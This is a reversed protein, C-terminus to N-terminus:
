SKVAGLLISYIGAEHTVDAVRYKGSDITLIAGIAPMRGFQERAVYLMLQREYIGEIRGKEVQKKSREIVENEDVICVMRRGDITHVEGFEDPNLFVQNIDNKIVDKFTKGM